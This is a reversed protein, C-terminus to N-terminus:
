YWELGSADGGASPMDQYDGSYYDPTSGWDFGTLDPSIYSPGPPAYPSVSTPSSAYTNIRPSDFISSRSGGGVVGGGGSSPPYAQSQSNSTSGGTSSSQQMKLANILSDSQGMPAFMAQAIAPFMQQLVGSAIQGRNRQFEGELGIAKDAFTSSGTNGAARFMDNLNLRSANEGPVLAGLLGNLAQQFYPHATPNNIFDMYGGAAQSIPNVMAGSIQNVQGPNEFYSGSQSKQTSESTSKSQGPQIAGIQGPLLPMTPQNWVGPNTMSSPLLPPM